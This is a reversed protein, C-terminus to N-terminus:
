LFLKTMAACVSGLHKSMVGYVSEWRHALAECDTFVIEFQQVIAKSDSLHRQAFELCIDGLRKSYAACDSCLCQAIAKSDSCLEQM